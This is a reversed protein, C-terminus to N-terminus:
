EEEQTGPLMEVDEASVWSRCIPCYYDKKERGLIYWCSKCQYRPM